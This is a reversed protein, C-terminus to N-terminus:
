GEFENCFEALEEMRELIERVIGYEFPPSTAVKKMHEYTKCKDQKHCDSCNM